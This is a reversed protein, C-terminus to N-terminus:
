QQWLLDGSTMIECYNLFEAPSPQNKQKPREFTYDLYQGAQDRIQLCQLFIQKWWDHLNNASNLEMPRYTKNTRYLKNALFAKLVKLIHKALWTARAEDHLLWTGSNM